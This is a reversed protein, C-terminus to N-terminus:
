TRRYRPPRAVYSIGCRLYNSHRFNPRIDHDVNAAGDGPLRSRSRDRLWRRRAFLRLRHNACRAGIVPSLRSMKEGNAFRAARERLGCLVNDCAHFHERYYGLAIATASGTAGIFPTFRFHSYENAFATGHGNYVRYVGGAEDNHGVIRQFGATVAVALASGEVYGRVSSRMKRRLPRSAIADLALRKNRLGVSTPWQNRRLGAM